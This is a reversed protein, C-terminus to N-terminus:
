LSNENMWQGALIAFDELDVRGNRTLDAGGCYDVPACDTRLWGQAFLTVDELVDLVGSVAIDDLRLQARAGSTGQVLYYRWLLQVYPQEVTEAPLEVPGLVQTHGDTQAAYEVPLGNSLVDTFPGSHGLRYQLRIAYLRSNRLLTGSLWSVRVADLGRTDIATLAGGLDRGRGTNIFSIGDGGLGNIRTRSTNNYPFGVTLLDEGTYDTHPIFYAFKLEQSLGPDSVDSQLFLFNEPYANEPEDASWSGFRLVGLRLPAAQPYVLVRFTMQAPTNVGDDASIVVEADGAAQASLTLLSGNMAAQMVSTKSVAASFTLTGDDSFYPAVDIELAAGEIMERFGIQGIVQPPLDTGPKAVGDITVNDFRNNGATSGLGQAFEIKVKFLPNDEVGAIGSFDFTHLVPVDDYVNITQFETYTSGDTSCSVTQMGAGSGSRRTEYQLVISEYGTTPVSLVVASGIPYNIRLHTGTSEDLRNNLGAFDQGDDSLVVTSAGPQVSMQAGSVTYVPSLLSSANNFSWYHMLRLPAEEFHATLSTDATMPLTLTASTNTTGGASQWHTFRYGKAAVATVTVPVNEFYTGSWPFPSPSNVGPTDANIDTSNVRIYGQSPDAVNLTLHRDAGLGFYARLQTRDYAPRQQAFTRMVQVNNPWNAPGGWGAAHRGIEGTIAAQMTDIVSVARAPVFATNLLDCYRNIFDSRFTQNELLKRFLFTTWHPNPWGNASTSTAFALTDSDYGGNLGFGFDTDYLMWRWRGDHGYPATPEYDDTQKRWWDINNGPWDTNNFYIQAIQYDRFNDTDIRTQIYAYDAPDALGNSEIYGLTQDFHLSSGQKVLHPQMRALYELIDLKDPDLGYKRELYHKDFRERLNNIGWYEGNIYLVAPRYAQTDLPLHAVLKQMVADRFMTNNWDNGSNRLLLRKFRETSIDPFVPYQVETDGYDGRAYLRLAKQAHNRTWGGHIRAGMNQSFGLTGDPEFLDIHVPREWGPGTLMYNGGSGHYIGSVYIGKEYGFFDPEEVALSVVSVSHRDLVDAGVFYTKTTSLSPIYGPRYARARVVTQDMTKTPIGSFLTTNDLSKIEINRYRSRTAWTGVGVGGELWPSGSNDTVDFILNSDLWARIRQGECRIRIDYWQDSTISGSVRNVFISWTGNDYGKEVGHLTNNWGGFNILYFRSGSVRVFFLFGESGSNKLAQCTLEYDTWAPDGFMLRVNTALSNQVVEDGEIAWSFPATDSRTTNITPIGDFPVQRQDVGIPSVYAFSTCTRSLLAGSPYENRYTYAQGALNDPTPDSGDLTYYVQAQSDSSALSVDFGNAYFGSEQSFEVPPTIGNYAVSGNNTQGPTSVDFFAWAVGGTSWAVTPSM